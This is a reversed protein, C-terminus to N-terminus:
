SKIRQFVNIVDRSAAVDHVRVLDAGSELLHYLVALSGFLREQPPKNVCEGIFEKRSVACLLPCGYSKLEFFRKCLEWDAEASREATWKGIGPDLIIEKIGYRRARELVGCIAVHTSSIDQSDGPLKHSAMAIAPLSSDALIKAYKENTLGSIDNVAAIDFRLAADLVEPHMTDVSLPYDYDCLETLASIIREKEESVSIVGSNLATSRAGVDIIDAGDRILKEARAVVKNVPTFSDSFFSEPSINMVGLIKPEGEKGVTVNKIGIEM